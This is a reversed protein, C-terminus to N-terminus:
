GIEFSRDCFSYKATIDRNCDVAVVPPIIGWHGRDLYLTDQNDGISLRPWLLINKGQYQSMDVTLAWGADSHNIPSTKGHAFIKDKQYLSHSNADLEFVASVEGYTMILHQWFNQITWDNTNDLKVQRIGSSAKNVHYTIKKSDSTTYTEHLIENLLTIFRNDIDIGPNFGPVDGFKYINKDIGQAVSDSIECSWIEVRYRNPLFFKDKWTTRPIVQWLGEGFIYAGVIESFFVRASKCDDFDDASFEKNRISIRDGLGLKQIVHQGLEFREPDKEYGIVSIAGHKIALLSLLGTGFGIDVCNQNQVYRSLLREYFHNRIVDNIMPLNIGDDKLWNFSLNHM